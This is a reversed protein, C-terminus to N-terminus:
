RVAGRVRPPRAKTMVSAAGLVDDATADVDLVRSLRGAVDVVHLAANHQFEGNTDAIVVIGFASLVRALDRSDRVRAMRWGHGAHNHDAYAQLRSRGDAPDFTISLMALRGASDTRHQLRMFAGSLLPCVTTCRTYVFDVLLPRGRYDSFSFTRGFQDELTVQPVPRPARAISIRRAQESTFVHLGGTGQYLSAGGAAVVIASALVTRRLRADRM